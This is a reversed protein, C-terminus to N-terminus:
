QESFLMALVNPLFGFARRGMLKNFVQLKAGRTPNSGVAERNVASIISFRLARDPTAESFNPAMKGEKTAGVGIVESHTAMPACDLEKVPQNVTV